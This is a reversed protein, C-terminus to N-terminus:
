ADRHPVEPHSWLSLSLGPSVPLSRSAPLCRAVWGSAARRGAAALIGGGGGGGERQGGAGEGLREVVVVGTEGTEPDTPRPGGRDERSGPPPPPTFPSPAQGGSVGAGATMLGEGQGGRPPPRRPDM